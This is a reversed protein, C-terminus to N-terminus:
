EAFRGEIAPHIGVRDITDSLAELTV